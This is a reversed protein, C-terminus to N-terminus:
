TRANEPKKDMLANQGCLSEVASDSLGEIWRIQELRAGHEILRKEVTEKAKKRLMAIVIIDEAGIETEELTQVPMCLRRYREADADVWAKLKWAKRAAIYGHVARGFAGAGYIVLPKGQQINQFPFLEEGVLEASIAYARTLVNCVTYRKLQQEVRCLAGSKEFFDILAKDVLRANDYEKKAEDIRTMMSDERICYHYHCEGSVVKREAMALMPYVAVADEGVKIRSDIGPMHRMVLERKFLKNWLYPQVGSCFYDECSIMGGVFFDVDEESHYVGEPMLNKKERIEGLVDEKMGEIVADANQRCACEYLSGYMDAEMWDDSDAFAVYKGTSMRIGAQRAGVLGGNPKHLVRIRSDAEAYRDCIAGSADTSGDDVLLIELDKMTQSQISEICRELYGDVNYVPVIISIEKGM